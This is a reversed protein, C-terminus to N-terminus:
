QERFAIIGCSNRALEADRTLGKAIVKVVDVSLEARVIAEFSNCVRLSASQDVSRAPISRRRTSLTSETM